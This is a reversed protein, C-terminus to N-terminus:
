PNLVSNTYITPSVPTYTINLALAQINIYAAIQSFLPNLANGYPSNANLASPKLPTWALPALPTPM